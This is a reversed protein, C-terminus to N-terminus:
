MFLTECVVLPLTRETFGHPGSSSIASSETFYVISICLLRIYNNCPFSLQRFDKKESIKYYNQFLM